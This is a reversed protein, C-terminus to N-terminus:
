MRDFIRRTFGLVILLGSDFIRVTERVISFISSNFGRSDSLKLYVFDFVKYSQGIFLFEFIAQRGVKLRSKMKSQTVM